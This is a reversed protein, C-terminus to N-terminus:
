TTGNSKNKGSFLIVGGVIALLVWIWTNNKKVEVQPQQVEEKPAEEAPKEETPKSGGGGGGGGIPKPATTPTPTTPVNCKKGFLEKAKALENNYITALKVSGFKTTSIISNLKDIESQLVKCDLSEWNPFTPESTPTPTPSPTPTPTPTPTPSIACGKTNYATNARALANQYAEKVEQSFRSTALQNELIQIQSKITVCPMNAYNPFSPLTPQTTPTPTTVVKPPLPTLIEDRPTTQIPTIM